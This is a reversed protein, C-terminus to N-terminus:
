SVHGVVEDDDAGAGAAIDAGDAGGLEAHLHRHHLLVVGEATGAEIDSANGRLRQQVRGLAVFLGAVQEVLHADLEALRLEIESGHHLELVLADIAVDLADREQELFVLDVRKLASPADDPGALDLHGGGVAPALRDCALRDDDSGARVHRPKRADVDVLPPDHGRSARQHQVLHRSPQQDDAGAHDSELEARHPPPEAGLHDHDLEKVADQGAYVALDAPLEM